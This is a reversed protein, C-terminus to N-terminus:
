IDMDSVFSVAEASADLDQSLIGFGPPLATRASPWTHGGGVLTQLV